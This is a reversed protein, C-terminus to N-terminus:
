RLRWAPVGGELGEGRGGVRSSGEKHVHMTPGSRLAEGCLLVLLLDLAEEDLDGDCLDVGPVRVDAVAREWVVGVGCGRVKERVGKWLGSM